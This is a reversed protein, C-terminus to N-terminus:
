IPGIVGGKGTEGYSDVTSKLRLRSGLRFGEGMRLPHYIQPIRVVVNEDTNIVDALYNQIRVEGM